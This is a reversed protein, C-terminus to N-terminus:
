KGVLYASDGQKDREWELKTLFKGANDVLKITDPFENENQNAGLGAVTDADIGRFEVRRGRQGGGGTTAASSGRGGGAAMGIGELLSMGIMASVTKAGLAAIAGVQAFANAALPATAPNALLAFGTAAAQAAKQEIDLIVRSIALAREVGFILLSIARNNELFGQNITTLADSTMLALSIRQDSLMQDTDAMQQMAQERAQRIRQEKQKALQVERNHFQKLLLERAELRQRENIFERQRLQELARTKEAALAEEEKGASRLVQIRMQELQQEFALRAQGQQRMRAALRESQAALMEGADDEPAMERAQEGIDKITQEFEEAAEQNLRLMEAQLSKLTSVDSTEALTLGRLRAQIEERKELLQNIAEQIFQTETLQSNALKTSVLMQSQISGFWLAAREFWSAQRPDGELEELQADIIELEERLAQAGEFGSAKIFEERVDALAEVAAEGAKETDYLELNFLDYKQTAVAILPILATVALAMGGPGALVGLMASLAQRSGGARNTLNQLQTAAFPINNSIAIFGFPLDQLIQSFSTFAPVAGRVQSQMGQVTGSAKRQEQALMRQSRASSLTIVDLQELRQRLEGIGQTYQEQSIEGEQYETKLIELGIAVDRVVENSRSAASALDMQKDALQEASQSAQKDGAIKRALIERSRELKKNAADGSSEVGQLNKALQEVNQNGEVGYALVFDLRESLRSSM